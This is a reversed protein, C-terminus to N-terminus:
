WLIMCLKLEIFFIENLIFFITHKQSLHVLFYVRENTHVEDEHDILDIQQCFMTPNVILINRELHFLLSLLTLRVCIKFLVQICFNMFLKSILNFIDFFVISFGWLDSFNDRTEFFM